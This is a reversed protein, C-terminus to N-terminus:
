LTWIGSTEQYACPERYSTHIGSFVLEGSHIVHSPHTPFAGVEVCGAGAWCCVGWAPQVGKCHRSYGHRKGVESARGRREPLGADALSLSFSVWEFYIDKADGHLREQCVYIQGM